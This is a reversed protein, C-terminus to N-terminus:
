QSRFRLSLQTAVVHCVVIALGAFIQGFACALGLELALWEVDAKWMPSAVNRPLTLLTVSAWLALIIPAGDGGGQTLHWATVLLLVCFLPAKAKAYLGLVPTERASILAIVNASHAPFGSLLFLFFGSARLGMACLLTATALLVLPLVAVLDLPVARALLLPTLRAAVPAIVWKAFGAHAQPMTAAALAHSVDAAAAENQVLALVDEGDHRRLVAGSQLACRLLTPGLTWDGLMACTDRLLTGNLLALGSWRDQADIRECHSVEPSDARTLLTPCTEGVLRAVNGRSAVAGSAMVLLQEDPHIRDAADTATRAVDIDIGEARLRDFAAVLGAPVEDVLVVIHGVGCARAMRVQYEILTQGVVSFLAQRQGLPVSADDDTLILGAIPLAREGL